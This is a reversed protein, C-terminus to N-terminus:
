SMLDGTIVRRIEFVEKSSTESISWSGGSEIVGGSTMSTGGRAGDGGGTGTCVGEKTSDNVFLNELAAVVLAGAGLDRFSEDAKM